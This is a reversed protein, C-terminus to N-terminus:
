KAMATLREKVAEYYSDMAHSRRSRLDYHVQTHPFKIIDKRRANWGHVTGTIFTSPCNM